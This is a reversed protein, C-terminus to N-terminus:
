KKNLKNLLKYQKYIEKKNKLYVELSIPKSFDIYKIFWARKNFQSNLDIHSNNDSLQYGGIFKKLDKIAKFKNFGLTKASVKLHGTDLMLKVNSPLCSLIKKIEKVDCMLFPNFGYKDFNKKTIVNNEIFVMLNLKKSLNAIKKVNLIYNKIHARRNTKKHQFLLKGLEKPDPDITFGAHISFFTANIKKTLSIVKKYHKMSKKIISSNSSALNLVLNPDNPPFFNHIIFNNKKSLSIIKKELNKIKKGSSLEINKIGISNLYKISKVPNKKAFSSTSYYIM